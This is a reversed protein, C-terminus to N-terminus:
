GQYSGGEPTGERHEQIVTLLQESLASFAAGAAAKAQSAADYDRRAATLANAVDALQRALDEIRAAVPKLPPTPGLMGVRLDGTATSPEGAYRKGQEAGQAQEAHYMPIEANPGYTARIQAIHDLHAVMADNM